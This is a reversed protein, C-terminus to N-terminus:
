KGCSVNENSSEERIGAVQGRRSGLDFGFIAVLHILRVMEAESSVKPM